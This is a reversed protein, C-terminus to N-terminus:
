ATRPVFKKRGDSSPVHVIEELQILSSSHIQFRQVALSVCGHMYVVM